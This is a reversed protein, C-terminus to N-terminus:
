PNIQPQDLGTLLRDTLCGPQFDDRSYLKFRLLLLFNAFSNFYVCHFM